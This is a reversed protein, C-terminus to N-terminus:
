CYENYIEKTVVSFIYKLLIASKLSRHNGSTSVDDSNELLQAPIPSRYSFPSPIRASQALVFLCMVFLTLNYFGRGVILVTLQVLGNITFHTVIGLFM